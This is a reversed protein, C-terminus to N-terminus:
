PRTGFNTTWMTFDNNGKYTGTYAGLGVERFGRNLINSRHGSSRMWGNFTGGPSIPAPDQAINEGCTRCRYGFRKLRAGFNGHEFYDRRIMDKSHSEAARMLAPHVCLRALGRSARERNHLDFMQKEPARLFIRDGGCRPAYGGGAAEAPPPDVVSVGMAAIVAFFISVFLVALYKM